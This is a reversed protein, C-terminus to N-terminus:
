SLGQIQLHCTSVLHYWTLGPGPEFAGLHEAHSFVRLHLLFVIFTEINCM